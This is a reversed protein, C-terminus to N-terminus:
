ELIIRVDAAFSKKSTVFLPNIDLEKINKNKEIIRSVTLLTEIISDKDAPKKGRFGKLIIESFKVENLMQEADFKSLPTVRFSVDKMLETFIGGAGLVVISNFHPDRKAGVILEYGDKVMKQILVKECGKIKMLENFTKVADEKNEINLRVGKVETKHIIGGSVKMVLPFGIKNVESSLKKKDKCFTYPVVSVRYRKLLAYAKEDDMKNFELKTVKKVERIKKEKAKSKPVRKTVKMKIKKARKLKRKAKVVKGKVQKTKKKKSVGRRKVKSRKKKKKRFFLVM